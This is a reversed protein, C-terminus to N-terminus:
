LIERIADIATNLSSRRRSNVQTQELKRRTLAKTITTAALLSRHPSSRLFSVPVPPPLPTHTDQVVM